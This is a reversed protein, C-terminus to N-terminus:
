SGIILAIIVTNSISQATTAVTINHTGAGPTETYMLAFSGTAAQNNGQYSTVDKQVGNYSLTINFTAQAGATAVTGKAWVIVKQTATTTLALTVGSATIINSLAGAADVYAKIAKQSPIKTDSNAVLTTDLDIVSTEIKGLNLASFNNNIDARSNTILDTTQITTIATM